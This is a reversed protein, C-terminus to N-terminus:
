SSGPDWQQKGGMEKSLLGKEGRPKGVGEPGKQKKNASYKPAPYEKLIGHGEASVEWDGQSTEEEAGADVEDRAGM